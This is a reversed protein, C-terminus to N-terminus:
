GRPTLRAAIADLTARLADPAGGLRLGDVMQLSITGETALAARAEALGGPRPEHAALFGRMLQATYHEAGERDGTATGLWEAGTELLSLMGPIMACIAFHHNLAAESAVDIVPNTDGFLLRLDDSGPCVALPCGGQELFGLPITIALETAPACLQRLTGLTVGAMVSIVRQGARFALPGLVQEALPPRLALFVVDSGEIVGQNSAVRISDFEAALAASVSRNRECVLVSHGRRAIARAMPAAIHGTGIFGARVM